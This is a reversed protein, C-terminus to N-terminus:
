RRRLLRKTGGNFEESDHQFVKWDKMLSNSGLMVSMRAEQPKLVSHIEWPQMFKVVLCSNSSITGGLAIWGTTASQLWGRSLLAGQARQM